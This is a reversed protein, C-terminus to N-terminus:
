ATEPPKKIGTGTDTTKFKGSVRSGAWDEILSRQRVRMTDGCPLNIAPACFWRWSNTWRDARDEKLKEEDPKDPTWRTRVGKAEGGKREIIVSSSLECDDM